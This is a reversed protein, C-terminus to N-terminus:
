LYREHGCRPCFLRQDKILVHCQGCETCPRGVSVGVQKALADVTNHLQQHRLDITAVHSRLSDIEAQM